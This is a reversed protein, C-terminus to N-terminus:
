TICGNFHLFYGCLLKQHSLEYLLATEVGTEPCVEVAKQPYNENVNTVL